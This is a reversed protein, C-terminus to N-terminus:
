QGPASNAVIGAYFQALQPSMNSRVRPFPRVLARVAGVGAWIGELQLPVEPNVGPFSGVLALDTVHSEGLAVAELRVSENMSTSAGYELALEAGGSTGPLGVQPVM